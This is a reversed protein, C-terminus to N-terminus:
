YWSHRMWFAKAKAPSGYRGKMYKIARRTNYTPDWWQHHGVMSKSLQFLGLCKGHNSSTPHYSSERKAIWLLANTNAASLHERKAEAVIATRVSAVSMKKAQTMTMASATMPLALVAALLTVAVLIMM